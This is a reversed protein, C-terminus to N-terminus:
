NLSSRAVESREEVHQWFQVLLSVVLVIAGITWPQYDGAAGTLVAAVLGAVASRRWIARRRFAKRWAFGTLTEHGRSWGGAQM